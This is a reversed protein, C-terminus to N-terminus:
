FQIIVSFKHKEDFLHCRQSIKIWRLIGIFNENKQFKLSFKLTDGKQEFHWRKVPDGKLITYYSFIQTKRRFPSVKPFNKDVETDRHFKREKSIKVFNEFHCRKARLTVKQCMLITYYSCIQTKRQFPSVKPFNKDVETDRHFNREKSIKLFFEFFNQSWSYKQRICDINQFNEEM